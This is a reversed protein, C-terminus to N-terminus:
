RRHTRAPLADSRWIRLTQDAYLAAGYWYLGLGWIVLAWGVVDLLSQWSADGTGALLFPFGFFLLFTAIKGLYHVPLATLGRRRLPIVLLALALERGILAAVLWWPIITRLALTVVVAAITIRDVLPDLIQGLASAQSYRRAIYGDLFDTIGSVALVAVALMDEGAGLVLWVFVGILLLRLISLVNPITLIRDTTVVFSDGSSHAPSRSV